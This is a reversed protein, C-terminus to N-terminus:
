STDRKHLVNFHPILLLSKTVQWRQWVPGFLRKVKKKREQTAFLPDQTAFLPEQTAFLDEQSGM